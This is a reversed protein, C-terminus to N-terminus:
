ERPRRRRLGARRPSGLGARGVGPGGAPAAVEFAPGRPIAVLAGIAGALGLFAIIAFLRLLLSRSMGILGKWTLALEPPAWRPLPFPISRARRRALLAMAGGSRVTELRRAVREAQEVAADEFRDAALLVWGYHLALLAVALPLKSLFPSWGRALVLGALARPPWLLADGPGAPATWAGWGLVAAGALAAVQVSRLRVGGFRRHLWARAFSAGVAHLEVTGIAVWLALAFPLLPGPHSRHLLAALVASTFAAQVLLKVLRFHVVQRRTAPAAFLFQVEDETFTLRPRPQGLLWCGLAAALVVLTGVAGSHRRLDSLWPLSAEAATPASWGWVVTLYLLGLATPVLYRARRLKRLGVRLANRFSAVLVLRSASAFSV